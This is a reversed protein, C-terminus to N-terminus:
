DVLGKEIMGRYIQLTHIAKDIDQLRHETDGKRRVIYKIATHQCANLRNAMSFAIPQIAMATYHSGGVQHLLAGVPEAKGTSRRTAERALVDDIDTTDDQM